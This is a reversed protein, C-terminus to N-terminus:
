VRLGSMVTERNGNQNEEFDIGKVKEEGECGTRYRGRFSYM